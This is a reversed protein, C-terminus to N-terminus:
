LDFNAGITAIASWHPVIPSLMAILNIEGYPRVFRAPEGEFGLGFSVIGSSENADTAVIVGNRDRYVATADVDYWAYGGRAAVYMFPGIRYKAGAYAIALMAKPPDPAGAASTLSDRRLGNSIPNILVDVTLTLNSAVPFDGGVGVALGFHRSRTQTAALGLFTRLGLRGPVRVDLERIDAAANDAPRTRTCESTRIEGGGRETYVLYRRGQEFPYGCDGLGTATIVVITDQVAGKWRQEVVLMVRRGSYSFGNPPTPFSTTGEIAIVRGLFVDDSKTWEERPTGIDECTCAHALLANFM